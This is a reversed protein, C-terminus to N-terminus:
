LQGNREALEENVRALEGALDVTPKEQPLDLLINVPVDLTKSIEILIETDPVSVNNEWRSITQRVVHVMASFEEQTYGKEKRYKKINDGLM